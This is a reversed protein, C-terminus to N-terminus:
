CLHSSIVTNSKVSTVAVAGLGVPDLGDQSRAPAVNGLVHLLCLSAHGATVSPAVDGKGTDLVHAVLVHLLCVGLVLAHRTRVASGAASAAHLGSDHTGEKNLLLLDDLLHEGLLELVLCLGKAVTRYDVTFKSLNDLFFIVERGGAVM